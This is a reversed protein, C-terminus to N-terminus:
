RKGRKKSGEPKPVAKISNNDWYLHGPNAVMMDALLEPTVRHGHWTLLSVADAQRVAHCAIQAKGKCAARHGGSSHRGKALGGTDGLRFQQALVMYLPKRRHYRLERVLVRSLRNLYEV